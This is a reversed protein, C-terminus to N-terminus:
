THFTEKSTTSAKQKTTQTDIKKERFLQTTTNAHFRLLLLEEQRRTREGRMRLYRSVYM